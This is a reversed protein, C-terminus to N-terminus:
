SGKPYLSTVSSPLLFSVAGVFLPIVAAHLQIGFQSSGILTWIERLFPLEDPDGGPAVLFYSDLIIMLFLLILLGEVAGAIGGLVEDIVPWKALLVMKQYSTQVILFIAVVAAVWLTLFGVMYSYEHPFQVWNQALFAGFWQNLQAALFFSFTISAIGILRRVAGSIYGLVFMGFLFVVILVDVVNLSRIFEAVNM